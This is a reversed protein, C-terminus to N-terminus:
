FRGRRGVLSLVIGLLASLTGGLAAHLAPSALRAHIRDYHEYWTYSYGMDRRARRIIRRMERGGEGPRCIGTDLARVMARRAKENHSQMVRLIIAQCLKMDDIKEGFCQSLRDLDRVTIARGKYLVKLKM